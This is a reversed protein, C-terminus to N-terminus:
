HSPRPPSTNGVPTSLSALLDDLGDGDDSGGLARVAADYARFERFLGARDKTEADDLETGLAVYATLLAEDVPEVRGLNRLAEVVGRAAEAASM